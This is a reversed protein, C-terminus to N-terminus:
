RDVEALRRPEVFDRIQTVAGLVVRQIRREFLSRLLGPGLDLAVAVTVLTRGTGQPEARFFGWVDRIDRPASADLWFRVENAGSQRELQITYTATFPSPGQTLEVRARGAEVGLLRASRTRPLLEPLAEVSELASLVEEPAARVLQYSVGGVYSGSGAHFSLPREVREGDLLAEREERSLAAPTEARAPAAVGGLSLAACLAGVFRRVRLRRALMGEWPLGREPVTLGACIDARDRM